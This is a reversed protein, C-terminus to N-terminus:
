EAAAGMYDNSSVIPVFSSGLPEGVKHWLVEFAGRGQETKGGRKVAYFIGEEALQIMATRVDERDMGTVRAMDLETRYGNNWVAILAEKQSEAFIGDEFDDLDALWSKYLRAGVRDNPCDQWLANVTNRTKQLHARLRDKTETALTNVAKRERRERLKRHVTPKSKDEDQLIEAVAEPDDARALALAAGMSIEDSELLSRIEAPAEALRFYNRVSQESIGTMESIDAPSLDLRERLSELYNMVEFATLNSRMLNEILCVVDLDGEEVQNLIVIPVETLGLEKAAEFRRHGALILGDNSVLLPQLIGQARISAVLEDFGAGKSDTRPNKPNPQLRDLRWKYGTMAM